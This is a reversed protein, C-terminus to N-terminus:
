NEEWAAFSTMLCGFEAQESYSCTSPEYSDFVDCRYYKYNVELVIEKSSLTEKIEVCTGTAIGDENFEVTYQKGLEFKKTM